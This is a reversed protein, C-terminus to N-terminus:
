SLLQNGQELILQNFVKKSVLLKEEAQIKVNSKTAFLVSGLTAVSSIVLLSLFFLQIKTRLSMSKNNKIM